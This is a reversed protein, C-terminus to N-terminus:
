LNKPKRPLRFNGWLDFLGLAAVAIALYPQFALFLYFILRIFVPVTFIGFFHIVVALGQIFYLFGVVILVNLAVLTVVQSDLLLSFGSVIVVWVLLEPNKFRSFPVIDICLPLKFSISKLLLLNLGVVLTIGIVFLAPYIQGLLAGAFEMGEKITKLDDGKVGRSEYLKLTQSISSQVGKVIEGHVDTGRAAAYFGAAAAIVAMSLMVTYAIAKSTTTGKTLFYPLVLSICSYQLVYLFSAAPGLLALLVLASIGVIIAGVARGSKLCYYLSPFPAFIGPVIGIVPLLTYLAFIGVTAISGKLIDLFSGKVGTEM